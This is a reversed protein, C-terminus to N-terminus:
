VWFVMMGAAFFVCGCFFGFAFPVLWKEMASGGDNTRRAPVV